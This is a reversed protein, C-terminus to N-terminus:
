YGERAMGDAHFIADFLFYESCLGFPTIKMHNLTLERSIVYTKQNYTVFYTKLSWKLFFDIEFRVSNQLMFSFKLIILLVVFFAKKSLDL